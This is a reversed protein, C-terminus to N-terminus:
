LIQLDIEDLDTFYALDFLRHLVYVFSPFKLFLPKKLM